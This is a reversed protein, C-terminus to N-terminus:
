PRTELAHIREEYLDGRKDLRDVDARLWRLEVRVALWAGFIAGAVKALELLVAETTM